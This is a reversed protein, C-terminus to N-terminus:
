KVAKVQGTAVIQHADVSRPAYVEIQYNRGPYALYVSTPRNKSYFAIGGKGVPIKVSDTNRALRSTVAFAATM